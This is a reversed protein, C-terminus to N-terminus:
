HSCTHPSYFPVWSLDRPSVLTSSCIRVCMWGCLSVNDEWVPEILVVRICDWFHGSPSKAQPDSYPPWRYWISRQRGIVGFSFLKWCRCVIFRSKLSPQKLPTSNSQFRDSVRHRELVKTLQKEVAKELIKSRFALTPILKTSPLLEPTTEQPPTPCRGTLLLQPRM